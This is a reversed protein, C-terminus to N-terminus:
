FTSHVFLPICNCFTKVYLYDRLRIVLLRYECIADCGRGVRGAGSDSQKLYKKPIEITIFTFCIKVSRHMMKLENLTLFLFYMLHAHWSQSARLFTRSKPPNHRFKGTPNYHMECSLWWCLSRRWTKKNLMSNHQPVFFFLSTVKGFLNDVTKAFM